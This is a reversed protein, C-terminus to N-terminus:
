AGYEYGTGDDEKEEVKKYGVYSKGKKNPYTGRVAAEICIPLKIRNNVGRIQYISTAYFYYCMNRKHNPPMGEISNVGFQMTARIRSLNISRVPFLLTVCKEFHIGGISCTTGNCTFPTNPIPEFEEGVLDAVVANSRNFQVSANHKFIETEPETYNFPAVKVVKYGLIYIGAKIDTEINTEAYIPM